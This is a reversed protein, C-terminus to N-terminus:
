DDRRRSRQEHGDAVRHRPQRKARRDRERTFFRFRGEEGEDKRKAKGHPDNGFAKEFPEFDAVTLPRTKGFAHMNARMDYVWVGKTNAKDTKGRTFFLVNTKVGQAYFIGTPLRLITHLNCLEMMWTRLRRGVNDEFLVNDPVVVAARGGPKLARVIHEVFALQKNSTDATISFDSRTPRGGGKKTGFPPNTLILDAKGLREGDPSLTDGSEVVSEIGHLMLNMLCLRHTDPM